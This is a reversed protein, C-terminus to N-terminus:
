FILGKSIFKPYRDLAIEFVGNWLIQIKAKKFGISLRGIRLKASFYVKLAPSLSNFIFFQLAKESNVELFCKITNMALAEPLGQPCVM